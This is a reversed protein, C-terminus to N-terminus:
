DVGILGGKRQAINDANPIAAVEGFESSKCELCPIIATINEEPTPGFGFVIMRGSGGCRPCEKNVHQRKKPPYPLTAM